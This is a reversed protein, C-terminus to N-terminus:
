TAAKESLSEALSPLVRQGGELLYISTDAPNIRRFNSRLTTTTMQAISAALEVGTPGAGVLVFTMQRRREDADETSEALEFASLIKTRIREADTITKLCP